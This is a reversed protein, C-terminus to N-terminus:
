KKAYITVMAYTVGVWEIFLIVSTLETSLPFVVSELQCAANYSLVGGVGGLLLLGIRPLSFLHEIIQSAYVSFSLWLLVLWFPIFNSHGTFRYLGFGYNVSDLLVGLVSLSFCFYFQKKSRLFIVTIIVMWMVFTIWQVDEPYLVLALWVAQFLVSAAWINLKVWKM